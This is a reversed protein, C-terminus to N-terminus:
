RKVCTAHLESTGVFHDRLKEVSIRQSRPKCTTGTRQEHQALGKKASALAGDVAAPASSAIAKSWIVVNAPHGPGTAALAAPAGALPIAVLLAGVAMVSKLSPLAM